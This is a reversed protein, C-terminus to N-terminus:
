GLTSYIAKEEPTLDRMKAIHDSSRVVYRQVYDRTDSHLRWNDRPNDYDSREETERDTNLQFKNEKWACTEESFQAQINSSALFSKGGLIEVSTYGGSQLKERPNVQSFATSQSITESCPVPMMLSDDPGFQGDLSPYLQKYSIFDPVCVESFNEQCLEPDTAINEVSKTLEKLKAGIIKSPLSTKKGVSQNMEGASRMQSLDMSARNSYDGDLGYKQLYSVGRPVHMKAEREKIEKLLRDTFKTTKLLSEEEVASSSLKRIERKLEKNELRLEEIEKLANKLQQKLDRFEKSMTHPIFENQLERRQRDGKEVENAKGTTKSNM